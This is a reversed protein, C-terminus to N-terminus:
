QTIYQHPIHPPTRSCPKCVCVSVDGRVRVGYGYAELGEVWGGVILRAEGEM